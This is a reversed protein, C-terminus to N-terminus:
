VLSRHGLLSIGLSWSGNSEHIIPQMNRLMEKFHFISENLRKLFLSFLKISVIDGGQCVVDKVNFVGYPLLVNLRLFIDKSILLFFM